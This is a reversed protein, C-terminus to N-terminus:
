SQADQEEGQLSFWDWAFGDFCETNEQCIAPGDVRHLVQHLRSRRINGLATGPVFSEAMCRHVDGNANIVAHTLGAGCQRAAPLGAPTLARRIFRAVVPNFRDCGLGTELAEIRWIVSLLEDQTFENFGSPKERVRWPCVMALSVPIGMTGFFCAFEDFDHINERSIVAHVEVACAHDARSHAEALRSLETILSLSSAPDAKKFNPKAFTDLSVQVCARVARTSFLARFMEWNPEKGNTVVTLIIDGDDSVPDFLFEADSRLTPEGGLFWLVDFGLARADLLTRHITQLSLSEQAEPALTPVSCYTCKNHHNNCRPTVKFDLWRHIRM